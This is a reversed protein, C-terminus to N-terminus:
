FQYRNYVYRNGVVVNPFAPNYPPNTQYQYWRYCNGGPVNVACSWVQIFQNAVVAAQAPAAVLLLSSVATALLLSLMRSLSRM